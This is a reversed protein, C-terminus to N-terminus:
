SVNERNYKRKRSDNDEIHRNTRFLNELRYATDIDDAFPRSAADGARRAGSRAAVSSELDRLALREGDAFAAAARAAESRVSAAYGAITCAPDDSARALSTAATLLCVLAVALTAVARGRHRRPCAGAPRSSGAVDGSPRRGAGALGGGMIGVAREPAFM